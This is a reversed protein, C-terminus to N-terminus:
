LGYPYSAGAAQYCECGGATGGPAGEPRAGEARAELLQPEERELVQVVGELLVGYHVVRSIYRRRRTSRLRVGPRRPADSALSAGRRESRCHVHVALAKVKARVKVPQTDEMSSSRDVEHAVAARDAGLMSMAESRVKKDVGRSSLARATAGERELTLGLLLHETGIYDHGFRVAKEQALVVVMRARETFREFV